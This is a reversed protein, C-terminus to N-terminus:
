DYRTDVLFIGLHAECVNPFVDRIYNGDRVWCEVMDSREHLRKEVKTGVVARIAREGNNTGRAIRNNYCLRDRQRRPGSM